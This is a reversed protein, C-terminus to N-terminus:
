RAFSNLAFHSQHWDPGGDVTMPNDNTFKKAVVLGVQSITVLRM